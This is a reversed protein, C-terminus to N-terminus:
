PTPPLDTWTPTLPTGQPIAGAAAFQVAIEAAIRARLATTDSIDDITIASMAAMHLANGDQDRAFEGTTSDFAFGAAMAGPEAPGGSGYGGVYQTFLPGLWVSDIAM